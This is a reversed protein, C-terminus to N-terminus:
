CTTALRWGRLGSLAFASACAGDIFLLYTEYFSNNEDHRAQDPMWFKSYHSSEPTRWFSLGRVFEVQIGGGM